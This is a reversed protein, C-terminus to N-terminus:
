WDSKGGESEEGDVKYYSHNLTSHPQNAVSARDQSEELKTHGVWLAARTGSLRRSVWSRSLLLYHIPLEDVGFVKRPVLEVSNSLKSSSYIIFCNSWDKSVYHDRAGDTRLDRPLVNQIGGNSQNCWEEWWNSSYLTFSDQVRLLQGHHNLLHNYHPSLWCSPWFSSIFNNKQHMKTPLDFIHTHVHSSSPKLHTQNNKTALTTKGPSLRIQNYKSPKPDVQLLKANSKRKM